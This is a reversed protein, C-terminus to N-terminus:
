FCHLELSPHDAWKILPPCLADCLVGDSYQDTIKTNMNCSFNASQILHNNAGSPSPASSTPSTPYMHFVPFIVAARVAAENCESSTRQTYIPGRPPSPWSYSFVNSRSLEADPTGSRVKCGREWTESHRWLFRFCFEVSFVVGIYMGTHAADVNGRM